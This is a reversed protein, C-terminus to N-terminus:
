GAPAASQQRGYTLTITLCASATSGMVVIGGSASFGLGFQVQLTDPRVAREGLQDLMAATSAAAGVVVARAQELADLARQAVAPGKVTPEPDATPVTQVLVDVGGFRMPVPESAM